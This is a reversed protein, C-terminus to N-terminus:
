HKIGSSSPSRPSRNSPSGDTAVPVCTSIVTPSPKETRELYDDLARPVQSPLPSTLEKVAQSILEAFETISILHSPVEAPASRLISQLDESAARADGLHQNVLAGPPTMNSLASAVERLSKGCEVSWTRCLEEVGNRTDASIQTNYACRRILTEITVYKKWPHGFRFEQHGPEWGAFYVLTEIARTSTPFTKHEQFLDLHEIGFGLLSKGLADMDAAILEHLEKGSWLPFVLTFVSMAICCGLVITATRNLAVRIVGDEPHGSLTTLCFTVNFLMMRHDYSRGKIGPLFRAFTALFVILFIFIGLLIPETTRWSLRAVLHAGIGLAAATITALIRDLGRAIMAGVTPEFVVAVTLVGWVVNMAFGDRLPWLCYFTSVLFTALGLKLSHVFVRPDDESSQEVIPSAERTGEGIAISFSRLDLADEM